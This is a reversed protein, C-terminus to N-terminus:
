RGGGDNFSGPVEIAYASEVSVPELGFLADMASQGSASATAINFAALVLSAAVALPAWRAFYRSMARATEESSSSEVQVREMVRDAFGAEFGPVSARVFEELRDESM